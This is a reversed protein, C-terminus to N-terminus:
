KTHKLSFHRLLIQELEGTNQTCLRFDELRFLLEYFYLAFYDEQLVCSM